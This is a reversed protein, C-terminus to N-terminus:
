GEKIYESILEKIKNEAQEQGVLSILHNYKIM